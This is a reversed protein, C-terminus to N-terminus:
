PVPAVSPGPRLRARREMAARLGHRVVRRSCIRQEARFLRDLPAALPHSRELRYGMARRPDEPPVERALEEGALRLMSDASGQPTVGSYLSLDWPRRSARSFEVDQLFLERMTRLTAVGVLMRDLPWGEEPEPRLGRRRRRGRRGM